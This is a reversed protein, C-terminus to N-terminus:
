HLKMAQTGVTTRAVCEQQPAFKGQSLDSLLPSCAMPRVATRSHQLSERPATPLRALKTMCRCLVEALGCPSAVAHIRSTQWTNFKVTTSDPRSALGAHGMLGKFRACAAEMLGEFRACAAEMLGKFRACAAPPSCAEYEKLKADASAHGEHLPAMCAPNLRQHPTTCDSGNGQSVAVGEEQVAITCDVAAPLILLHTM